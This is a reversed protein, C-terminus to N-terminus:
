IRSNHVKIIESIQNCLQEIEDDTLGVTEIGDETYQNKCVLVDGVIPQGHMDYGYLLSALVNVKVESKFLGEDDVVLCLNSIEEPAELGYVDESLGYAEVIDICDCGITKYYWDLGGVFEVAEFSHGHGKILLAKSM